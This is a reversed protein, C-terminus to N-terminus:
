RCKIFCLKMKQIAKARHSLSNKEESSLEAMTKNTGRVMFVPDYGFGNIGRPAEMIKGFLVGEVTIIDGTPSSLAMVCRFAAKRLNLPVGKLEDLLKANNDSYSCGAGAYRASFIGPAGCLYDVELGTDDALAWLGTKLATIKAKKIANDRLTKGDEEIEGIKPFDNICKFNFDSNGMIAKIEIIKNENRTAIVITRM